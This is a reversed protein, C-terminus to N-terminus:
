GSLPQGFTIRNGDPDAISARRVKGPLTEIETAFGRQALEGVHQDLDDVLLTLLGNGARDSDAVVYVWGTDALQWVAESDHPHFDPARGLLSEYWVLAAPYDAVPLGAFLQTIAM